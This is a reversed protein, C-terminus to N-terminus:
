RRRNELTDVKAELKAVSISLRDVSDSFKTFVILVQNDNNKLTNMESKLVSMSSTVEVLTDVKQELSDLRFLTVSSASIAGILITTLLPNQSVWTFINHSTREQM